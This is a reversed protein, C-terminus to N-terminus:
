SAKKRSEHEARKAADHVAEKTDGWAEKVTGKIQDARGENALRDNGVVEGTKEKVKGTAQDVKGSVQDKNM